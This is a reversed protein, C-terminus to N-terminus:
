LILLLDPLQEIRQYITLIMDASEAHLVYTVSLHNENRSKRESQLTLIPYTTHFDHIGEQFLPTNKGIFKFSFVHPYTEKTLLERLKAYREM